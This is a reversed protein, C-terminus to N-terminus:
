RENNTNNSSTAVISKLPINGLKNVNIKSRKHFLEVGAALFCEIVIIFIAKEERVFTGPVSQGSSSSTILLM